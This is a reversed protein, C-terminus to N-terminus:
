DKENTKEKANNRKRAERQAIAAVALQWFVLARSIEAAHEYTGEYICDTGDEFKALQWKM